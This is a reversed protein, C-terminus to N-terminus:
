AVGEDEALEKAASFVFCLMCCSLLFPVINYSPMVFIGSLGKNELRESMIRM